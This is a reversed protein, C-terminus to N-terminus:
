DDKSTKKDKGIVRDVLDSDIRMEEHGNLIITKTGDSNTVIEGQFESPNRNNKM